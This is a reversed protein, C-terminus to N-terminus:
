EAKRVRKQTAPRAEQSAVSAPTRTKKVKPASDEAPTSAPVSQTCTTTSGSACQFASKATDYRERDVKSRDVFPRKQGESLAKWRKGLEKSVDIPGMDPHQKRVEPRKDQCFYIYSSKPGAVGPITRRHRGNKMNEPPSYGACETKYREKDTAALQEFRVKAKQGLAKWRKGLEKLVQNASMTPSGKLVDARTDQCFFIYASRPRRPANPDKQENAHTGRNLTRVVEKRSGEWAEMVSSNSSEPLPLSGLLASLHTTLKNFTKSASM